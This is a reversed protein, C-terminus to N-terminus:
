KNEVSMLVQIIIDLTAHPTKKDTKKEGIPPNKYIPLNGFINRGDDDWWTKPSTLHWLTRTKSALRSSSILTKHSLKLFPKVIEHRTASWFFCPEQRSQTQFLSWPPCSIYTYSKLIFLSANKSSQFLISQLIVWILIFSIIHKKRYTLVIIFQFVNCSQYSCIWNWCILFFNFESNSALSSGLSKYWSWVIRKNVSDRFIVRKILM